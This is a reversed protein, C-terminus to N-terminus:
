FPLDNTSKPPVFTSSAAEYEFAERLLNRYIRRLNPHHRKIACDNEYWGNSPVDLNEITWHGKEFGDRLLAATERQLDTFSM